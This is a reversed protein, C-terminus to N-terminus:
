NERFNVRFFAAGPGVPGQLMLPGGPHPLGQNGPVNWLIWEMLNSSTEVQVSRNAPPQLDMRIQGNTLGLAASPGSASDLPNTGSLFEAHNTKGDGDPDASPASEAPPMGPLESLRWSEYSQRAPLSQQIWETLLAISTQDLENSGLPPMRTFGNSAATRNLIISHAPDGPVILKNLPNGGHNSAEGLLLGTRELPLTIRGDWAATGATGGAKHCYACNVELWSRVRAEVPYSTENQRLHRPLVNSPEPTNSFYGAKALLDIQNGAFGHISNTLNFQRSNMSLSYGAQPTHCIMCESRSPIHWRQTYPSGNQTLSLDFDVGEDPVLTAETGAENWRYSVGYAGSANRVLLRTEIRKAPQAPDSIRPPNSRSLPLDFHKVWIQGAPFSWPGERSWGIQAGDDPLTFWRRKIAHDSWFPLNVTYPLLGPNPTLDAVSAFLGTAGLTAPFSNSPTGTVLRRIKGSNLNAMLVDGNSPDQGFAAIGGEGAIREVTPAAPPPNRRLTWLHGSVFDAFLYSGMLSPFRTGRYVFGGTISNGQLTGSGHAYDYVPASAYLTAFNPPAAAKPGALTGERWAWGLNQGKSVLNVEERNDGGVDGVWLEGTPPDFSMRWPNRLGVAWFESRVHSLSGSSLATGNFSGGWSGGQSTHVWPNDVPVSYAAQFIGSGPPTEYRKVANLAPTSEAPNPHANPELNGPKKDVDLRLIGSFFDKTIKQSNSGADNQDGEDGASVYLYGDAGFLLAGGNHNHYDDAQELFILESAADALAANGPQVRFRSLREFTTSGKRVSYFIYFYGNSAYAPHFALGLLGQEGSTSLTEGRATLLAALDLFTSATPAASLVNPIMRLLGGKQCIFLRQMDGPPSALCVPEAFTLSGFADTIEFNTPPPIAPVNLGTPTIRLNQAFSITVAAGDSEGAPNVARYSFSDAIPTGTTHTYLLRGQPDTSVTGYQPGSVIRVSIGGTDNNLVPISAQQLHHMTISDPQAVPVAPNPGLARSALIEAPGLVHNYLRVEDYTAHSGRDGSWLSRGLWNNVDEIQNLRFGTDATASRVGDRYWSLRGGSSGFAGAGAEFTVVYHYTVNATTALNTDVLRYLGTPDPVNGAGNLKAEFRQENLSGGRSLTLTLSDSAQTGGPSTAANGTIEGPAGLGDGAQVIRGFDMLRQFTQFSRPSTWIEITLSTKTSIIGNPLDVYASVAAPTQNGNSNGPLTVAGAAFSGGQGRLIANQGSISDAILTGSPAPGPANSFSWRNTLAAEMGPAFGLLLGMLVPGCYVLPAPFRISMLPLPIKEGYGAKTM